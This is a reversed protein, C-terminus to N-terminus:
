SGDNDNGLALLFLLGGGDSAVAGAAGAFGLPSRASGVTQQFYSSYLQECAGPLSYTLRGKHPFTLDISRNLCGNPRGSKRKQNQKREKKKKELGM